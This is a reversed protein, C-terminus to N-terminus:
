LIICWKDFNSLSKNMLLWYKQQFNRQKRNFQSMNIPSTRLFHEPLRHCTKHYQTVYILLIYELRNVIHHCQESYSPVHGTNEKTKFFTMECRRKFLGNVLHSIYTCSSSVVLIDFLLMYVSVQSQWLQIKCKDSDHHQLSHRQLM